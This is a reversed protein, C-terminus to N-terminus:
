HNLFNTNCSPCKTSQNFWKSLCHKHYNDTHLLVRWQNKRILTYCICCSDKNDNKFAVSKIKHYIRRRNSQTNDTLRFRPIRVNDLVVNNLYGWDNYFQLGLQFNNIEYLQQIKQNIEGVIERIKNTTYARGYETNPDFEGVIDKYVLPIFYLAFKNTLVICLYWFLYGIFQYTIDIPIPYLIMSGILWNICNVNLIIFMCILCAVTKVIWGM